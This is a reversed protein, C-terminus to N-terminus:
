FKLGIQANLGRLSTVSVPRVISYGVEAFMQGGLADAEVGYFAQGGVTGASTSDVSADYNLGAGFYSRLGEAEPATMRYIGDMIALLHTHNAGGSVSGSAYGVGLRLSTSRFEFPNHIRMELVGGAIGAIYGGSLGFQVPNLKSAVARPPVVRPAVPVVVPRPPTVIIPRPPPPPPVVIVPRKVVKRVVRADSQATLAGFAIVFCVLVLFMSRTKM